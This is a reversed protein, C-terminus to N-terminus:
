EKWFSEKEIISRQYVKDYIPNNFENTIKPYRIYNDERDQQIEAENEEIIEQERRDNNFEIGQALIDIM